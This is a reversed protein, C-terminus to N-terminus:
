DRPEQAPVYLIYMRAVNCPFLLTAYLDIGCPSNWQDPVRLRPSGALQHGPSDSGQDQLLRGRLDEPPPVPASAILTWKSGCVWLAHYEWHGSKDSAHGGDGERERSASRPEFQANKPM